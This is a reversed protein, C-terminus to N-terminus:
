QILENQKAFMHPKNMGLIKKQQHTLAPGMPGGGSFANSQTTQAGAGKIIFDRAERM